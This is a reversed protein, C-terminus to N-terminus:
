VRTAGAYHAGTGGSKVAALPMVCTRNAGVAAAAAPEAGEVLLLQVSRLGVSVAAAPVRGPGPLTGAPLLDPHPM